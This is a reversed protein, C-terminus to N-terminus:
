LNSASNSTIIAKELEEKPKSITEPKRNIGLKNDSLNTGIERKFLEKDALMWGEIEQIPVIPTVIKCYENKDQKALEHLAPAIRYEYANADSPSDADTHICLVTIGYEDVGQKSADVVMEVFSKNPKYINLLFVDIILDCNYENAIEIFTREVISTLFRNDTNGETMLGIFIQRTM